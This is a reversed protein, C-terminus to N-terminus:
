KRIITPQSEEKKIKDQEGKLKNKANEELIKKQEETMEVPKELDNRKYFENIGMPPVGKKRQKEKEMWDKRQNIMNQKIEYEDQQIINEILEKKYNKYDEAIQKQIVKRGKRFEEAVRIDLNDELAESPLMKISKMEEERTRKVKQISILHEIVIKKKEDEMLIKNDGGLESELKKHAFKLSKNIRMLNQRGIEFTQLFKVAEEINLNIEYPFKFIDEEPLTHEQKKQLRQDILMNRTIFYETDERFYRPIPLNLNEPQLKLEILYDDLFVYSFSTKTKEFIPNNYIILSRKVQCVRCILNELFKKIFKRIQPHTTQDYCDEVNKLIEIYRIYLPVYFNMYDKTVWSNSIKGGKPGLSDPYTEQQYQEIIDTLANTFKLYFYKDSM